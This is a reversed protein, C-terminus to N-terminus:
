AVLATTAATHVSDIWTALQAATLSTLPMHPILSGSWVKPRIVGGDADLTMIEARAEYQVDPDGNEDTGLRRVIQVYVDGISAVAAPTNPTFAM